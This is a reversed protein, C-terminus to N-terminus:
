ASCQEREIALALLDLRGSGDTKPTPLLSVAPITNRQQYSPACFTLWAPHLYQTPHAVQQVRSNVISQFCNSTLNRTPSPTVSREASSDSRSGDSDDSSSAKSLRRRSASTSKRLQSLSEPYGRVFSPHAHM